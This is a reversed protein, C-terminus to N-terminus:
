KSSSRLLLHTMVRVDALQRNAPSVEKASCVGSDDHTAIFGRKNAEPLLFAALDVRLVQGPVKDDLEADGGLLEIAM